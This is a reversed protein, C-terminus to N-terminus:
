TTYVLVQADSCQPELDSVSSLRAAGLLSAMTLIQVSAFHFGRNFM